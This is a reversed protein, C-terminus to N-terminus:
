EGLEWQALVVILEGTRQLKTQHDSCLRFAYTLGQLIPYWLRYGNRVFDVRKLLLDPIEDLSALPLPRKLLIEVLLRASEEVQFFSRRQATVITIFFTRINQPALPM